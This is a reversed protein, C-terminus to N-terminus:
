PTVWGRRRANALFNRLSRADSPSGSVTLHGKGPCTLRHHKGGATLEAGPNLRRLERAAKAWDSGMSRYMGEHMKM